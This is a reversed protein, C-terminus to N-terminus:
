TIVPYSGREWAMIGGRMNHVNELGQEQLFKCAAMSTSGTNCYVIVPKNKYKSIKKPNSKLEQLPLNIANTIHGKDYAEKNRVDIVVANKRNILGVAELPTIDNYRKGRRQFETVVLLTLLAMLIGFLITNTSNQSLFATFSKDM